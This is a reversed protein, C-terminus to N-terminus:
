KHLFVIRIILYISIINASWCWFSSFTRVHNFKYISYILTLFTIIFIVYYKEVLLATIFFVYFPFLVRYDEIWNWVLHGQYGVENSNKISYLQPSSDVFIFFAVMLYVAYMAFYCSRIVLNQIILCSFFPQILILFRTVFSLMYNIRRNGLYIWIFYENLQVLFYSFLAVLLYPNYGNYYALCLTFSSFLFTSMSVKANWCM